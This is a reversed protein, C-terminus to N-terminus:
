TIAVEPANRLPGLPDAPGPPGTPLGQRRRELAAHARHLWESWTLTVEGTHTVHVQEELLRLYQALLKLAEVKNWLRVKRTRCMGGEPNDEQWETIDVSAIAHALDDDLSTLPTLTGYEDFLQRVDSFAVRAVERLVVAATIGLDRLDAADLAALESRISANALLRSANDRAVKGQAKYVQEYARQANRPSTARYLALFRRQNANLPM